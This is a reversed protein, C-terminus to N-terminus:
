GKNIEVLRRILIDGQRHTKIHINKARKLYPVDEMIYVNSHFHVMIRAKLDLDPELDSSQFQLLSNSFLTQQVVNMLHIPTM